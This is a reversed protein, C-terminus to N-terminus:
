VTTNTASSNTKRCCTAAVVNLWTTYGNVTNRDTRNKCSWFKKLICLMQSTYHLQYAKFKPNETVHQNVGILPKYQYPKQLAM